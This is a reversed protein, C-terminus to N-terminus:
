AAALLLTRKGSLGRAPRRGTAAASEHAGGLRGRLTPLSAARASEFNDSRPSTLALLRPTPVVRGQGRAAARAQPSARRGRPQHASCGATGATGAAGAVHRRGGCNIAARGLAIVLKNSANGPPSRGATTPLATRQESFVRTRLRRFQLQWFPRFM